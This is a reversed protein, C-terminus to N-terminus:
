DETHMTPDREAESGETAPPGFVATLRQEREPSHPGFYSDDVFARADMAYSTIWRRGTQQCFAVLARYAVANADSWGVHLWRVHAFVCVGNEHFGHTASLTALVQVAPEEAFM